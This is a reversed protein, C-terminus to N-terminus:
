RCSMCYWTNRIPDFILNFGCYNCKHPGLLNNLKAFMYAFQGNRFKFKISTPAIKGIFKEDTILEFDVAKAESKHKVFFNLNYLMLVTIIGSVAAGLCIFQINYLIIVIAFILGILLSIILSRNEGKTMITKQYCNRCYPINNIPIRQFKEKVIYDESQYDVYGSMYLEVYPSCCLSCNKPWALYQTPPFHVEFTPKDTVQFGTGQQISAMMNTM